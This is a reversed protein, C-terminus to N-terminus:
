KIEGWDTVETVSGNTDIKYVASYNYKNEANSAGDSRFDTGNIIYHAGIAAVRVYHVKQYKFEYANKDLATDIELTITQGDRPSINTKFSGPDERCNNKGTNVFRDSFCCFRVEGINNVVEDPLDSTVKFTAIYKSGSVSINVNEIRVYPTVTFDVKNEGKKLTFDQSDAVFNAKLSRMYYDGAFVLRNVYTGNSKMSWSQAVEDDWDRGIYAQGGSKKEYINFSGGQEQYVPQGTKGDIISGYVSANYGEQNDLEFWDCSAITLLSLACTIITFIKKMIM